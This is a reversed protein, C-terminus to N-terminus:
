NQNMLVEAILNSLQLQYDSDKLQALDDANTLFGCEILVSPNDIHSFLYINKSITKATKTHEPQLKANLNRQLEEAILKARDNGATYFVQIGRVSPDPYSNMHISVMTASPNEDALAIRNRIDSVKKRHISNGETFISNEDSRTLLHPVKNKNLHDSIKLAIALNLEQETTGDAGSTGGDPIGHGADIIYRVTDASTKQQLRFELNFAVLAFLISIMFVATIGKIKNLLM